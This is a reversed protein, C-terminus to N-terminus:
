LLEMNSWVEEMFLNLHEQLFIYIYSADSM